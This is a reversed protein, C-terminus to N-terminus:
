SAGVAGVLEMHDNDCSNKCEAQMSYFTEENVIKYTNHFDIKETSESIHEKTGDSSHNNLQYIMQITVIPRLDEACKREVNIEEQMQGWAVKNLLEFMELSLPTTPKRVVKIKEVLDELKKVEEQPPESQSTERVISRLFCDTKSLMKKAFADHLNGKRELTKTMKYMAFVKEPLTLTSVDFLTSLIDPVFYQKILEQEFDIKAGSKCLLLVSDHHGGKIAQYLPQQEPKVNSPNVKAGSKTLARIVWIYGEKAASALPTNGYKDLVEIYAGADILYQTAEMRAKMVAVHIPHQGFFASYSNVDAGAKILEQLAEIRGELAALHVPKVNYLNGVDLDAGADILSRLTKMDGRQAAHQVPTRNCNCPIDVDAGAEILAVAIDQFGDNTAANLPTEGLIDKTNLDLKLEDKRALLYNVLRPHGGKSAMFLPTEGRSNTINSNVGKELLAKVCPLDGDWAAAIISDREIEEQTPEPKPPRKPYITM